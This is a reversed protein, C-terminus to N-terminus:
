GQRFRNEREECGDEYKRDLFEKRLRKEEWRAWWEQQKKEKLALRQAREEAGADEPITTM